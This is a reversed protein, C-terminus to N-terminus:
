SRSPWGFRRPNNGESDITYESVLEGDPTALIVEEALPNRQGLRTGNDVQILIRLDEGGRSLRKISTRRRYRGDFMAIEEVQQPDSDAQSLLEAFSLGRLEGVREAAVLRAADRQAHSRESEFGRRENVESVTM